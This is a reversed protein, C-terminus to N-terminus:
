LVAVAIANQNFNTISCKLRKAKITPNVECFHTKTDTELNQAHLPSSTLKRSIPAVEGLYRYYFLIPLELPGAKEMTRSEM